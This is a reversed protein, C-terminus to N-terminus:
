KRRKMWAALAGQAEALSLELRSLVNADGQVVIRGERAAREIEDDKGALAASVVAPALVVIVDAKTKAQGRALWPRPGGRVNWVRPPESTMHVEVTGNFREMAAAKEELLIPLFLEFLVDAEDLTAPM